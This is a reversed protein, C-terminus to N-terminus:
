EETFESITLSYSGETEGDQGRDRMVVVFYTGTSPFTYRDVGAVDFPDTPGWARVENGNIDQIVIRPILTGNTRVVNLTVQQEGDASYEYRDMWNANSLTGEISTDLTLTDVTETLAPSGIGAGDLSVTLVYTGETGGNQEGERLVRVTYTGPTDLTQQFIGAYAGTADTWGRRIEQGSGGLLIVSPRLNGAEEAAIDLPRRVEITITDATETTLTWDQYWQGDELAGILTEGYVVEGAIANLIPNGVGAGALHVIARYTGETEGDFRRSRTFALTYTGASPIDYRVLAIDGGRDTFGTRLSAGNSDLIEIEPELTGGLRAMEIELTDPASAELTYRQFWHEDTIRGEFPVNYTVEGMAGQNIANDEGSALLEVSLEYEGESAGSAGRERQVIITYLGDSPLDVDEIWAVAGTRDPGFSSGINNASADLIIVDPRLTGSIREARISIRDASGVVFEWEQQSQTNDLTGTVSTDYSLAVDEDQALSIPILLLFTIITIFTPKKWM